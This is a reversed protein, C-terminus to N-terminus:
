FGYLGKLSEIEQKSKSRQLSVLWNNNNFERLDLLQNDLKTSTENILKLRDGDSMQVTFSKMLDLLNDVNGISKELIGSYIIYIYEIERESFNKDKRVWSYADQYEKLLQKQKNIISSFQRYYALISKVRWLEDFYKQYIEKQRSTWESIEDLKLKSLANELQKQVNQLDITKNQIRQVQLDVARIVKKTAIKLAEVIALQASAINSVAVFSFCFIIILYRKM